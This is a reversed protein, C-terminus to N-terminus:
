VKKSSPDAAASVAASSLDSPGAVAAETESWIAAPFCREPLPAAEDVSGTTAEGDSKMDEDENPIPPPTSPQVTAPLHGYNGDMLQTPEPVFHGSPPPPLM